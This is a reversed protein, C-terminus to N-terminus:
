CICNCYFHLPLSINPDYNYLTGDPKTLPANLQSLSLLIAETVCSNKNINSINNNNDNHTILIPM